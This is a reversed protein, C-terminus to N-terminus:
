TRQTAGLRYGSDDDSIQFPASGNPKNPYAYEGTPDFILQGVRVGAEYAYQHM